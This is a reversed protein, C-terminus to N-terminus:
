IIVNEVCNKLVRMQYVQVIQNTYILLAKPLITYKYSNIVCLLANANYIAIFICYPNGFIKYLKRYDIM